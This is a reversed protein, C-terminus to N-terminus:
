SRRRRDREPCPTTTGTRASSTPKRTPSSADGPSPGSPSSSPLLSGPPSSGPALFGTQSSSPMRTPSSLEKRPDDAEDKVESAIVFCSVHVSQYATRWIWLCGKNWGPEYNDLETAQGVEKEVMRKAAENASHASRFGGEHGSRHTANRTDIIHWIISYTYTTNPANQSSQSPQTYRFGGMSIPEEMIPVVTNSAQNVRAEEHSDFPKPSTLLLVSVVAIINILSAKPQGAYLHKESTPAAASLTTLNLGAFSLGNYLESNALLCIVMDCIVSEFSAINTFRASLAQSSVGPLSM